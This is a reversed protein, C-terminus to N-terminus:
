AARRPAKQASAKGGATRFRMVMNSLGDAENALRHTVATTEEVMAANQQTVQDMQSVAINVEQLGTAQERAATAISEIHTNIDIVQAAINNLADGTAKVLEVGKEVEISSKDILDKIEKAASASRQALERVEQAVVAFGKGAEGARAAEVGANLALLNTQFAIEDIVGIIKAIEDSANEIRSMAGVADAVIVTSAESAANAESAKKSADQARESSSKVTSTIQELAASTEELSAAQQETRKSLDEVASRMEGANAHISGINTKVDSLTDALKEVSTNFNTRLRDLDGAFPTNLSVTLDGDALRDLGDALSEIAANLSEAEAAKAAEREARERDSLSREQEMEAEIRIKEIAADQFVQLARSMAGIEDKLAQGPITLDLDGASIRGMAGSLGALPRTISRAVLLSVLVVALILAGNVAGTVVIGTLSAAAISQADGTIDAAVTREVERLAEIRATTVSFWTKADFGAAAIDGSVASLRDRMAGVEDIGSSALLSQYKARNAEPESAIFNDVLIQQKAVSAVFSVYGQTSLEGAGLAGAILGRERGAYEKVETLNMMAVIQTAIRPDSALEAARFGSEIISDIISSYFAMNETGSTKHADMGARHEGVRGLQAGIGALEANMAAGASDVLRGALQSFGAIEADTERRAAILAEPATEAKAGIFGASLGREVQLKHSLDGLDGIAAVLEQLFGAKSYAEFNSKLMLGSLAILGILPLCAVIAIRNTISFRALLTSM